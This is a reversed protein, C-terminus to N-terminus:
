KNAYFIRLAIKSFLVAGLAILAASAYDKVRSREKAQAPDVIHNTGDHTNIAKVAASSSSCCETDNEGSCCGSDNKDDSSSGDCSGGCCGNEKSM